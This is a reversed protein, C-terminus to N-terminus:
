YFIYYNQQSFNLVKKIKVFVGVQLIMIKVNHQLNKILVIEDIKIKEIEIKSVVVIFGKLLNM